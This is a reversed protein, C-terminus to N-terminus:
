TPLGKELQKRANLRRAHEARRQREELSINLPRGKFIASLHAKEEPTRQAGVSNKNGMMRVSMKAKMEPTNKVRKASASMRARTEDSAKRGRRSAAIKGRAEKSITRARYKARTEESCVRESSNEENRIIKVNGVAYPGKDQFRAMCYRGRGRGRESLHGSSNWIQLWETFTLVFAVGRRAADAKQQTFRQRLRRRSTM